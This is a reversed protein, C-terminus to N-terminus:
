RTEWCRRQWSPDTRVPHRALIARARERGLNLAYWPDEERTGLRLLVCSRYPEPLRDLAPVADASLGALYSWDLKGTREYRDVNHRAILADPDLAGLALLALAGTAAVARPLWAARLRIGAAAVLVVVVGLWVEFAHVWVRLRTLGYAQEYLGLRRLASAVVVLTLGCLVGLVVRVLVRDRASERPAKRVAAAIVLLVLATAVVLQAFGQRAYEAYTLGTSRLLRERDASLLVTAQVAVFALFLADLAALPLAWELRGAPRGPKPALLRWRPPNAALYAAALALGATLGFLFVRAPLFDLDPVIQGVLDRFAADASAFLAGFVVLLGAAVALARVVPWAQSAGADRAHRLGRAAWPLMRLGAFGVSLGGLLLDFWTRGGALAYSALPLALLVSLAAIWPADRIAVMALLLFALGGFLVSTRNVRQRAVPWAAGAVAFGTLLM